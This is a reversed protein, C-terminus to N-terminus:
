AREKNYSVMVPWWDRRDAITDKSSTALPRTGWIKRLGFRKRQYDYGQQGRAMKEEMASVIWVNGQEDVLVPEPALVPTDIYLGHWHSGTVTDMVQVLDGTKPEGVV